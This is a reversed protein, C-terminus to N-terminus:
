WGDCTAATMKTTRKARVVMSWMKWTMLFLVHYKMGSITPPNHVYEVGLALVRSSVMQCNLSNAEDTHLTIKRQPQSPVSMEFLGCVKSSYCIPEQVM